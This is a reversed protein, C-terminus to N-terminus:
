VGEVGDLVLNMGGEVADVGAVILGVFIEAGVVLVSEEVECANIQVDEGRIVGLRTCVIEADCGEDGVGDVVEALEEEM